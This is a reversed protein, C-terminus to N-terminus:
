RKKELLTILEDLQDITFDATNEFMKKHPRKLLVTRCGARNGAEIDYFYDGVVLLNQPPIKMMEAARIVAEPSPKPTTDDRSVLIPVFIGHKRLLLHSRKKSGRTVVAYPIGHVDLYELTKKMGKVAQSDPIAGHEFEDIMRYANEQEGRPLERVTKLIDGERIGLKERISDFPIAIDVLTGDLDFIVGLIPSKSRVM